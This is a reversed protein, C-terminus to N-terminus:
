QGLSLGLLGAAAVVLPKPHAGISAAPLGVAVTSGAAGHWLNALFWAECLRVGGWSRVSPLV